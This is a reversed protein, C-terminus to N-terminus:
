TAAEGNQWPMEDFNYVVLRAARNTQAPWSLFLGSFDGRFGRNHKLATGQKDDNSPENFRCFVFVDSAVKETGANTVPDYKSTSASTTDIGYIAVARGPQSWNFPATYVQAVTLDLIISILPAINQQKLNQLEGGEFTYRSNWKLTALPTEERTNNYFPKPYQNKM